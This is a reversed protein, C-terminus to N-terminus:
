LILELKLQRTLHCSHGLRTRMTKIKSRAHVPSLSPLATTGGNTIATAALRM